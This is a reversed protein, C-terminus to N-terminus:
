RLLSPSRLPTLLRVQPVKPTRLQEPIDEMVQKEVSAGRSTSRIGPIAMGLIRANRRGASTTSSSISVSECDLGTIVLEHGPLGLTIINRGAGALGGGEEAEALASM